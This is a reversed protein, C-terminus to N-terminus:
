ELGGSALEEGRFVPVGDGKKQLEPSSPTATSGSSGGEEARVLVVL